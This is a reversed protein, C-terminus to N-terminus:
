EKKRTEMGWFFIWSFIIALIIILSFFNFANNVDASTVIREDETMLFFNTIFFVRFYTSFELIDETAFGLYISSFIFFPIVFFVFIPFGSGMGSLSRFKMVMTNGLITITLPVLSVVVLILFASLFQDLTIPLDQQVALFAIVCAIWTFISTVILVILATVTKGIFLEFRKTSSLLIEIASEHLFLEQIVVISVLINIIYAFTVYIQLVYGVFWQYGNKHLYIELTATEGAFSVYLLTPVFCFALLFLIRNSLLYRTTDYKLVIFCNRISFWAEFFFNRLFLAVNVM